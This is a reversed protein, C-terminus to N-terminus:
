HNSELLHEILSRYAIKKEELQEMNMRHSGMISFVPLYEMHCLRATQDFPLLYQELPFRNNGTEQYAQQPGGTSIISQVKKGKLATGGPGYAWGIELVLDIWQKLLPPCSYWYLPHQWVIIDHELLLKKEAEIHIDFDPYKEYLDNFTLRPSQPLAQLLHKHIKSDELRPHAFLILVKSM